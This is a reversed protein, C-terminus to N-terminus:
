ASSKPLDMAAKVTDAHDMLELFRLVELIQRVRGPMGALVLHRNANKASTFTSALIGVGTSDIHDVESFDLIIKQTDPMIGKAAELFAWGEEHGRLFGQLKFVATGFKPREIKYQFPKLTM